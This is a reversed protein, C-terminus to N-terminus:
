LSSRSFGSTASSGVSTASPVRCRRPLRNRSLAYGSGSRAPGCFFREQSVRSSGTRDIFGTVSHVGESGVDVFQQLIPFGANPLPAYDDAQHQESGVIRRYQQILKSASHVVIGKDTLLRHVHTRPKILIPYPLTPALAELGDGSRADWSPLVALGARVAAKAFLMKDLICRMGTLSPQYLCFHQKLLQANAHLAL